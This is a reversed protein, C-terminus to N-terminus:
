SPCLPPGVNTKIPCLPPQSEPCCWTETNGGAVRKLADGSLEEGLIRVKLKSLKLSRKAEEM